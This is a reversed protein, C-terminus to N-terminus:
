LPKYLQIIPMFITTRRDMPAQGCANKAITGVAPTGHYPLFITHTLTHTHQICLQM